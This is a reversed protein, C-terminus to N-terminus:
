TMADVWAGRPDRNALDVQAKRTAQWHTNSEDGFDSLRAIVINMQPQQLDRRLNEVLQSLADLYAASLQEKADREGQMWCFTLSAPSTDSGLLKKYEDLIPQYYKTEANKAELGHKSAIADWQEVWMRIPQGGRAVKFYQVEADPFLKAAEDEFGVKPDMGAMNSQGSLIFVHVPKEDGRCHQVLAVQILVALATVCRTSQLAKM